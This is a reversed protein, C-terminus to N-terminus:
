TSSFSTSVDIILSVSGNGMVTCGSIGNVKKIYRPLAKVVVQQEGMLEDAFLCMVKSENEVVIIIGEELNATDPRVKFLEHLRLVPCCNGRIMLM